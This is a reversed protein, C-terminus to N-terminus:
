ESLQIFVDSLVALAKDVEEATIILPPAIRIVSPRPANIIVGKERALAMAKPAVEATLEVGILLGKGRINKVLPSNFNEIGQVFRKEMARVNDLINDKEFTDLVANAAACAYPNGGFTTGHLGPTLYNAAENTAICAGMPLGGALGKALTIIDPFVKRVPCYYNAM